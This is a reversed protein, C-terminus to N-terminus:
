CSVKEALLVRMSGPTRGGTKLVGGAPTCRCLLYHNHVLFLICDLLVLLPPALDLNHGPSGNGVHLFQRYGVGGAHGLGAQEDGLVLFQGIIVGALAVQHRHDGITGRDQAQPIDAGGGTHGYHLALAGKELRKGIHVGEGETNVGLVHVGQHAGDGEDGFTKAADVQLVDGGGTAKLHLAAQFLNAVDGDEVVVLVAGGDHHPGGQKVGDLHGLFLHAVKPHHDVPGARGAHGDPLLKDGHAEAVDDHAIDVANDAFPVLPEVGPLLINGADAVAPM